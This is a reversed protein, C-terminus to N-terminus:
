AIEVDSALAVKVLVTRFLGASHSTVVANPLMVSMLVLKEPVSPVTYKLAVNFTVDSKSTVCRTKLMVVLRTKRLLVLRVNMFVDARMDRVPRVLPVCVAVTSMLSLPVNTAHSDDSQVATLEM